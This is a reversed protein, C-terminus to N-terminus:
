VVVMLGLIVPFLVRISAIKFTPPQNEVADTNGDKALPTNVNFVLKRYPSHPKISISTSFMFTLGEIM